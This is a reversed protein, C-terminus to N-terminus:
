PLITHLTRVEEKLLSIGTPVRPGSLNALITLTAEGPVQLHDAISIMGTITAQPQPCKIILPDVTSHLPALFLIALIHHQIAEQQPVVMRHPRLLRYLDIIMNNISDLLGM